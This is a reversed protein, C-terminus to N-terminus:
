EEIPFLEDFKNGDFGNHFEDYVDVIQHSVYEPKKSFKWPEKEPLPKKAAFIRYCHHVNEEKLEWANTEYDFVRDALTVKITCDNHDPIRDEDIIVDPNDEFYTNWHTTYRVKEVEGFFLGSDFVSIEEGVRPMAPLATGAMLRLTVNKFILRQYIDVGVWGSLHKRYNGM